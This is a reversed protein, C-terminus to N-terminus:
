LRDTHPTRLLPHGHRALDGYGQADTLIFIINPKDPRKCQSSEATSLKGQSSEAATVPALSSLLTVLSLLFSTTLKMIFTKTQTKSTSTKPSQKDNGQLM